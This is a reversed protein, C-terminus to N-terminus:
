PEYHRELVAQWDPHAERSSGCLRAEVHARYEERDSCLIGIQVAACGAREAVAPWATRTLAIPNVSDAIVAGGLVLSDEALAHAVRYGSDQLDPQALVTM